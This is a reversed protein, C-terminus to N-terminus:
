SLVRLSDFMTSGCCGNYFDKVCEDDGKHQDRLFFM